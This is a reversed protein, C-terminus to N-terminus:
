TFVKTHLYTVIDRYTEPHGFGGAKTVVFLNAGIARSLPIGPAAEALLELGRIGRRECFSRAVDGGSLVVTGGADSDVIRDATAVLAERVRRSTEHVDWGKARGVALAADVERADAAIMTDMGREVAERARAVSRAVAAGDDLLATPAISEIHYEHHTAFAAIQRQTAVGISGVILLVCGERSSTSPDPHSPPIDHSSPVAKESPGDASMEAAIADLLGASGVWLVDDRIRRLAALACLDADTEADAVGIRLGAARALGIEFNLRQAGERVMELSLSAFQAELQAGIRASRVPSFLDRGFDTLDAPVGHVLLVGDRCTRGQKPFAPCVIAFAGPLAELLATLEPGTNGRLTSDMKKLITRPTQPRLRALLAHMRAYAHSPTAARSEMDVVLVDTDVADLATLHDLWVTTRLRRQAFAIGADSAGTLDDAVVVLRTM